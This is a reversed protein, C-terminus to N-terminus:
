WRPGRRGHRGRRAHLRAARHQASWPHATSCTCREAADAPRPVSADACWGRHGRAPASTGGPAEPLWHTELVRRPRIKAGLTRLWLSLLPTRPWDASCPVALEEVFTDALENRWVFSSWLPHQAHPFRGMLLWEGHQRDAALVGTALLVPGSVLV